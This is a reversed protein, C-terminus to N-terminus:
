RTVTVAGVPAALTAKVTSWAGWNGVKDRAAVRFQYAHNAALNLTLSKLTTNAYVTTWAGGDTRRQVRYSHFGSTLVQLRIDAGTWNVTVRRTAATAGARIIPAATTARAGTRDPGKMYVATWLKKGTASDLALGVGVYNFSTSVVIAKHGPSKLWGTNAAQISTELTPNNNWAIIEGANYWTIKRASLMSFVNGGGPISHSFYNRAVMDASRARAIAMLRSDARVPVLGRTTRDVNLAAIMALEAESVTMAGAAATPAPAVLAAALLGVVLLLALRSPRRPSPHSTM